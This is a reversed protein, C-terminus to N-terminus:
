GCLHPEYWWQQLQVGRRVAERGHPLDRLHKRHLLSRGRQGPTVFYFNQGMLTDTQAAVHPASYSTPPNSDNHAGNRTNHCTMCIAGMGVGTANFGAPLMGTEGKIRVDAGSTAENGEHHPDHCTVCTQPHVSAKTMGLATLEAVTANGSAGQIRKTLDGQDTWALFGEVSHCRGCHGATAGRGEVTAEDLALTYDAHKSEKWQYFRGHRQPEGHCAGCVRADLSVRM